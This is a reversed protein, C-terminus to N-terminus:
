PEAIVPSHRWVVGKDASGSVLWLDVGHPMPILQPEGDMRTGARPPFALVPRLTAVFDVNDQRAAIIAPRDGRISAFVGARGDRFRRNPSVHLRGDDEPHRRNAGRTDRKIGAIPERCPLVAEQHSP